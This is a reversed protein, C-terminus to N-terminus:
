LTSNSSSETGQSQYTPVRAEAQGYQLDSDSKRVSDTSSDKSLLGIVGVEPITSGHKMVNNLLAFATLYTAKAHPKKKPEM